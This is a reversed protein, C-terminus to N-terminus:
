SMLETKVAHLIEYAREKEMYFKPYSLTMFMNNNLSTVCIFFSNKSQMHAQCSAFAYIKRLGHEATAYDFKGMSSIFFYSDTQKTHLSKLFSENDNANMFDCASKLNEYPINSKVTKKIEQTIHKSLWANNLQEADITLDFWSTVFALEKCDFNERVNVGITIGIETDTGMYKKMANATAASLAGTITSSKNKYKQLIKSFEESNIHDYAAGTEKSNSMCSATRKADPYLNIFDPLSHNVITTKNASPSFSLALLDAIFYFGSFVDGIIHHFCFLIVAGSKRELITMRALCANTPFPKNLEEEAFLSWDGRDDTVYKVPIHPEELLFFKPKSSCVSYRLIPNKDMLQHAAASVTKEELTSDIEAVLLVNHATSRSIIWSLHENRFYLFIM